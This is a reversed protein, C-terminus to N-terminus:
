RTVTYDLTTRIGAFGRERDKDSTDITLVEIRVPIAVPYKYLIYGVSKLNRPMKTKSETVLRMTGLTKTVLVKGSKYFGWGMVKESVTFAYEEGGLTQKGSRTIVDGTKLPRNIPCIVTDGFASKLEDKLIERVGEELKQKEKPTLLALYDQFRLLAKAMQTMDGTKEINNLMIKIEKLIAPGRTMEAQDIQEQTFGWLAMRDRVLSMKGVEAIIMYIMLRERQRLDVSIINGDADIVVEVTPGETRVSLPGDIYFQYCITDGARFVKGDLAVNLLKNAKQILIEATSYADVNYRVKYIVGPEINMTIPKNIIESVPYAPYNCSLVMTSLNATKQVACAPLLIFLIIVISLRKM